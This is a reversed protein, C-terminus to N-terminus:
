EGSLKAFAASAATCSADFDIRLMEPASTMEILATTSFSRMVCNRVVTFM